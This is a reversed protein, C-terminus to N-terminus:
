YKMELILTETDFIGFRRRNMQRPVPPIGLVMSQGNLRKRRRIHHRFRNRTCSYFGRTHAHGTFGYRCNQRDMLDLHNSFEKEWTYFDRSFGSLNPYAYHSFLISGAPTDLVEYEPLHRIYARAEADWGTEEDDHHLWLEKRSLKERELHSLQYWDYPLPFVASHVPIRGAAHMDHNGPIVIRCKERVLDLCARADRQSAYRYYAPSYGCIDGLCVMLDYGERGAKSCVHQLSPFDEHIDTIIAIRM